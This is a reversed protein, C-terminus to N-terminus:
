VGKGARQTGAYLICYSFPTRSTLRFPFISASLLKQPLKKGPYDRRSFVAVYYWFRSKKIRRRAIEPDQPLKDYPFVDIFIGQFKLRDYGKGGEPFFTDGLRIKAFPMMYAPDTENTQLHLNDPLGKAGIVMLKEYDERPMYIDIDDDWPIYGKHRVAGILTGSSLFYRLGHAECFRHVEDLIGMQIQRLEQIDDIKKM